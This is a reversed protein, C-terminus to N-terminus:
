SLVKQRTTTTKVGVKVLSATINTGTTWVVSARNSMLM